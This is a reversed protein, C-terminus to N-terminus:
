GYKLTKRKMKMKLRLLVSVLVMLLTLVGTFLCLVNPNSYAKATLYMSVLLVNSPVMFINMLLARYKEVLIEAKFYSILPHTIGGSGNIICVFLVRFFYGEVFYAGLFLGSYIASYGVFVSYYNVGKSLKNMLELSKNHTLNAIIMVIFIIGPNIHLTHSTSQLFPTWFFIFIQISCTYISDILGLLLIAKNEFILQFGERMSVSLKTIELSNDATYNPRNEEWTFLIVLFSLFGLFIALSMSFFIGFMNFLIAGTITTILSFFADYLYIRSFIRKRFELKQENHNHYLKNIEYNLWSEFATQLSSGLIGTIVQSLYALPRNGTLRLATTIMTNLPALCSVTKRGLTDALLGLFPGSIINLGADILYMMSIESLSFGHLTSYLLYVYPAKAWMGMRALIYAGMFKKKLSKAKDEISLVNFDKAEAEVEQGEAEGSSQGNEGFSYSDAAKSDIEVISAEGKEQLPEEKRSIRIFYEVLCLVISVIVLHPYYYHYPIETNETKGLV